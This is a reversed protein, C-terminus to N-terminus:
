VGQHLQYPTVMLIKFSSTCICHTTRMDCERNKFFVGHCGKHCAFHAECPTDWRNKFSSSVSASLLCICETGLTARKNQITQFINKSKLLTTKATKNWPSNTVRKPVRIHTDWLTDSAIGEKTGRCLGKSIKQWVMEEKFCCHLVNKLSPHRMYVWLGVYCLLLLNACLNLSKLAEKLSKLAAKLSKLAAKMAQPLRNVCLM